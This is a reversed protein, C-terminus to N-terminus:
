PCQGGGEQPTTIPSGSLAVTVVRQNAAPNNTPMCVTLQSQSVLLGSPRFVVGGAPGSVQTNSPATGALIVQDTGTANDRAEIIWGAWDVSNTCTLGDASPCLTVRANRRVAESRALQLASVVEGTLGSIRSRNILGTMAPVAVASLIAIVAVTVMLEVLTFGGGHRGHM